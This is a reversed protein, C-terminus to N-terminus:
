DGEILDAFAHAPEEPAKIEIASGSDLLVDPPCLGRARYWDIGRCLIREASNEEPTGYRLNAAENCTSGKEGHLVELGDPRPGIFALAVLHHVYRTNGKGLQVSKYVSPEGGKRGRDFQSLERVSFVRGLADVEYGPHGPIPKREIM